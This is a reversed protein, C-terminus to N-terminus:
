QQVQEIFLLREPENKFPLPRHITTDYQNGDLQIRYRFNTGAVVQTQVSLIQEQTIEELAVNIQETIAALISGDNIRAVDEETIVNESFGGCKM